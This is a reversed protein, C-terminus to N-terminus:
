PNKEENKELLKYFDSVSTNVSIKAPNFSKLYLGELSKVRSLAVYTQGHAFIADGVDVEVLDLSAGQAKHITVAWALVLPIQHVSIEQLKESKWVHRKVISTAGNHFQVVPFGTLPDFHTIIGTSGNCIGGDVDLNAVCMVQAGQKLTLREEFPANKIMNQIEILYKNPYPASLTYQGKVIRCDFKVEDSKLEAMKKRNLRDVQFRRPYLITPRIGHAILSKDKKKCEILTDYSKRSLKGKRIQNLIKTFRRDKQRHIERLQISVDINTEWMDSEFCYLDNEPPALQYFDGSLIVQIGGFPASSNRVTKAIKDLLEFTRSSLMSVEDVILIDVIRWRLWKYRTKLISQLIITDPPKMLGIGAWSHLTKANANLLFAACGTLACCQIKKQLQQASRVMTRILHSKGSGAPGTMFVNKGEHFAKMVLEQSPSLTESTDPQLDDLSITTGNTYKVQINM